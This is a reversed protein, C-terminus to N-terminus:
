LSLRARVAIRESENLSQVWLAMDPETGFSSHTRALRCLAMRGVADELMQGAVFSRGYYGPPLVATEWAAFTCLTALNCDAAQAQYAQEMVVAYEAYGACRLLRVSFWCALMEHTWHFINGEGAVRHFMEHGIQLRKQLSDSNAALYLDYRRDAPERVCEPRLGELLLFRFAADTPAGFDSVAQRQAFRAYEWLKRDRVVTYTEAEPCHPCRWQGREGTTLYRFTRQCRPM